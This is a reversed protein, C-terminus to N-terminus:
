ILPTDDSEEVSETGTESAREQLGESVLPRDKLSELFARSEAVLAQEEPTLPPPPTSPPIIKM